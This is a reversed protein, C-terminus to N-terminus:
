PNTLPEQAEDITQNNNFPPQDISRAGLHGHPPKEWTKVRLKKQHNRRNTVGHIVSRQLLGIVKESASPNGWPCDFGNLHRHKRLGM